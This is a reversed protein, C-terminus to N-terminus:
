LSLAHAYRRRSWLRPGTSRKRQARKPLVALEMTAFTHLRDARAFREAATCEPQRIAWGRRAACGRGLVGLPACVGGHGRFTRPRVASPM